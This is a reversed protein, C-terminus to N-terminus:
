KSVHHTKHKKVREEGEEREDEKPQSKDVLIVSKRELHLLQQVETKKEEQCNNVSYFRYIQLQNLFHLAHELFSSLSHLNIPLLLAQEVEECGNALRVKV